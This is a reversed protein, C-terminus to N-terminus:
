KGLTMSEFYVQILHLVVLMTLLKNVSRQKQGIKARLSRRVLLLFGM